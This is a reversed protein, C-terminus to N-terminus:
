ILIVYLDIYVHCEVTIIYMNMNNCHGRHFLVTHVVGERHRVHTPHTNSGGTTIIYLEVVGVFPM